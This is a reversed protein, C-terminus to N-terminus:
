SVGLEKNIFDFVENATATEIKEAVANEKSSHQSGTWKLLMARLRTTVDARTNDDAPIDSLSSELQDLQTFVSPVEIKEPCIEARLYGALAAPTPYDFVLTSLLRMGTATGLRNRLEIATLSDFGLDTFPRGPEVAEASDHGLVAAAQTRVLNLLVEQQGASPLAALQRNLGGAEQGTDRAATRRASTSRPALRSLLRPTTQAALATTDLPALVTLPEDVGIAADFLALAQPTSLPKVGAQTIRGTDRGTLHATLESRQEWLGWALSAGPLGLANREAALADLFANAAAYNGQGPSGFTAAASSFLVFGALNMEATLEHLHAAGVAKAAMVASVRQPTLATVVGDDLAAATHVVATLPAHPPVADIVAALQARSTVDCTTITATAGAAALAAALAVAGPAAPGRRSALLLSRAGTGALHRALEAGLTGTGGTVLVTGDPDWARPISLVVKGTHRAQSVFRFAERGRRVDWCRVPLPHLKGAAFLAALEALMGAVLDPGATALDIVQYAAGAHDAAVQAPDRVDTKGMEVIRGGPALLGLSADTFPGALANLVIDVGAGGTAARFREAFELTRSSGTHGADLGQAALVPWKAPSATGFVELGLHRALQVAAMGVGGAASHVLLREGARAGAAAVLGYYATLFAVPVAAAEAWSWGDPVPVVLRQDTVAVPGFGNMLGMVRDGVALGTVGPGTETVVGAGEGGIQGSIEGDEALRM